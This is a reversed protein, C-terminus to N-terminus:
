ANDTAVVATANGGSAAIFPKQFGHQVTARIRNLRYGGDDVHSLEFVATRGQSTDVKLDAFVQLADYVRIM